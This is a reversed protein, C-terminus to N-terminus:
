TAQSLETFSSWAADSDTLMGTSAVSGGGGGGLAVAASEEAGGGGGFDGHRRGTPNAASPTPATPIPIPEYKPTRASFRPASLARPQWGSPLQVLLAYSANPRPFVAAVVDSM